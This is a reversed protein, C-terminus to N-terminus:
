SPLAGAVIEAIDRVAFREEVNLARVGDEFMTVCFPCAVAVGNARTDIAENLRNHSIRTGRKEEMFARAGGAGCCFGRDRCRPMEAFGGAVSNMVERPEDYVDNYRGLYCPDHYAFDKGELTGPAVKLRGSEILEQILQSHHVVSYNGGLEPYENKLTNFCHPCSAVIRKGASYQNLREINTQALIQYLYENGARRAPDGSCGEERGLIAFRVGAAAFIRALATAVRQNRADFSSMCGVWYIVELSGPDEVQSLEQVGAAAAWEARTSAPFSYPNSNRELNNFLTVLEQPFKSQELVLNRRMEVILPVHEIQVPCQEMCARCTTCDWLEDESVVDGILNAIVPVQGLNPQEASTLESGRVGAEAAFPGAPGAELGAQRNMYAGIEVILQRPKLPKGTTFTPCFDLCRGCRMCADFNLLQKWSFDQLKAVGFHEQEEINKITSLAARPDTARLFVNAPGTFIHALKSVPIYVLLATNALLHSWWTVAHAATLAAPDAGGLALALPYSVWHIPAAPDHTAALRLAQLVFGSVGLFLLLGLVIADDSLSRRFRPLHQGYRRYVAMLLGIVFLLGFLNIVLKYAVYFGGQYFSLGFYPRVIDAELLVILTGIFLVVFGWFIFLHMVGSYIYGPRILGRHLFAVALARGAREGIRDIRGHARGHRWMLYRRTGGYTLLVAQLAVLVYMVAFAVEGVNWGIPRTPM